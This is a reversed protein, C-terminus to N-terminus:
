VLSIVAKPFGQGPDARACYGVGVRLDVAEADRGVFSVEGGGAVVCDFEVVDLGRIRVGDEGEIAVCAVDRANREVALAFPHHCTRFVARDLDPISSTTRYLPIVIMSDGHIIYDDVRILSLQNATVASAIHPNPIQALVLATV